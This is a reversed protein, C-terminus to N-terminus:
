KIERRQTPMEMAFVEAIMTVSGVKGPVFSIKQYLHLDHMDHSQCTRLMDTKM